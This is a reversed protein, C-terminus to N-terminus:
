RKFYGYRGESTVAYIGNNVPNHQKIENMTRIYSRYRRQLKDRCSELSMGYAPSIVIDNSEDWYCSFRDRYRSFRVLNGDVRFSGFMGDSDADIAYDELPKITRKRAPKDRKAIFFMGSNIGSTVERLHWNMFFSSPMMKYNWFISPMSNIVEWFEGISEIRKILTWGTKIKDGVVAM